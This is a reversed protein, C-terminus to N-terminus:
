RVLRLDAWDARDGTDEERAFDVLLELREVGAVAVRLPKPADTGSVTARLLERGDGRVVFQVRGLKGGEDDLGIVGTLLSFKKDLQYTLSSRSHVGLGREFVRGRLTLPRGSVSADRRWPFRTGFWGAEAVAVPELESVFVGRGWLADVVAVTDLPVTVAGLSPTALTVSDTTLARLEGVLRSGDCGCVAALKERPTAPPQSAALALAGAISLPIEREDDQWRFVVRKEDLSQLIGDLRVWEGAKRVFLADQWLRSAAAQQIERRTTEPITGPPTLWVLSVASLPLEALGTLPTEVLLRENRLRLRETRLADGAATQVLFGLRWRDPPPPDTLRLEEVSGVALAPLEGLEAKQERGDRLRVTAAHSSSILSLVLTFSCIYVLRLIKARTPARQTGANLRM